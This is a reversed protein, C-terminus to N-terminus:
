MGRMEDLRQVINHWEEESVHHCGGDSHCEILGAKRMADCVPKLYEAMEKMAKMVAELDNKDPGISVDAESAKKCLDRSFRLHLRNREVLDVEVVSHISHSTFRDPEMCFVTPGYKTIKGQRQCGKFTVLVPYEFEYAHNLKERIKM